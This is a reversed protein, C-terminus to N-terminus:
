KKEKEGEATMTVCWNLLQKKQKRERLEWPYIPLHICVCVCTCVRKRPSFIHLLTHVVWQCISISQSSFLCAQACVFFCLRLMCIVCMNVCVFWIWGRVHISPLFECGGTVCTCPYSEPGLEAHPIPPSVTSCSSQWMREWLWEPPITFELLVPSSM